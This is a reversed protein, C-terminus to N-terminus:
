FLMTLEKIGFDQIVDNELLIRLKGSSTVEQIIGMFRIKNSDEFPMLVSKKFILQQYKEWLLNQNNNKIFNINKEFAILIEDLIADKDFSKNCINKLSSAKELNEFDVQNVNLGFGIISAISKDSKITNEILIGAIKKNGSLIDNPWKISLEPINNFDLVEYISLAIAINLDFIQDINNLLDKILISVILNKGSESIWEAGMQGKGNTQNNATVVTFNQLDNKSSLEKLFDNTSDIADLKIINM